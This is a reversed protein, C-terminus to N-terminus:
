GIENLWSLDEEEDGQIRSILSKRVGEGLTEKPKFMSSYDRNMAELVGKPAQIPRGAENTPLNIIEGESNTFMEETAGNGRLEDRSFAQTENLISLLPNGQFQVRPKAKPQYKSQFRKEISDMESLVRQPRETVPTQKLELLIEGKFRKLETRVVATVIKILDKQTM